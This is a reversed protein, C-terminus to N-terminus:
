ITAPDANGAEEITQGDIMEVTRLEISTMADSPMLYALANEAIVAMDVAAVLTQRYEGPNGAEQIMGADVMVKLFRAAYASLSGKSEWLLSWAMGEPGEPRGANGLQEISKSLTEIFLKESVLADRYRSVESPLRDMYEYFFWQLTLWMRALWVVREAKSANRRRGDRIQELAWNKDLYEVLSEGRLRTMVYIRNHYRARAPIGFEQGDRIYLTFGQVALFEDLSQLDIQSCDALIKAAELENERLPRDPPNGYIERHKLLLSFVLGMEAPTM